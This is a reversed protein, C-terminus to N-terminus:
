SPFGFALLILDTVSSLQNLSFDLKISKTFFRRVWIPSPHPFCFFRNSSFARLGFLLHSLFVSCNQFLIWIIWLPASSRKINYLFRQRAIYHLYSCRKVHLLHLYHLSTSLKIGYQSLSLLLVILFARNHISSITFVICHSPSWGVDYFSHSCHVAVGFQHNTPTSTALDM